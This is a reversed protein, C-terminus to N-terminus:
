RHKKRTLLLVLVRWGLLFSGTVVLTVVIFSFETSGGFAVRLLQGGLATMLWVILGSSKLSITNKRVRPLLWALVLALLFPLATTLTGALDEQHSKRGIAVFLLVLLLDLGFALAPHLAPRPSAHPTTSASM